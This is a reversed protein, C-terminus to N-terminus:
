GYSGNERVKRCSEFSILKDRVSLCNCYSINLSPFFETEAKLIPRSLIKICIIFLTSRSPSPLRHLPASSLAQKFCTLMGLRCAKQGSSPAIKGQFGDPNWRFFQKGASWFGEGSPVDGINLCARVAAQFLMRISGRSPRLWGFAM